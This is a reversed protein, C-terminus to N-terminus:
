SSLRIWSYLYICESSYILCSLAFIIGWLIAKLFMIKQKEGESVLDGFIDTGVPSEHDGVTRWVVSNRLIYLLSLLKLKWKAQM